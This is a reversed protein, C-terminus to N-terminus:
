SLAAFVYETFRNALLVPRDDDLGVVPPDDPDITLKPMKAPPAVALFAPGCDQCSGGDGFFILGPDPAKRRGRKRPRHHAIAADITPEITKHTQIFRLNGHSRGARLLYTRYQAPLPRGVLRELEDIEQQSAGVVAGARREFKRFIEDVTM